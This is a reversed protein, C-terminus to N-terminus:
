THLSELAHVIGADSRENAIASVMFGEHIAARGTKPGICVIAKRPGDHISLGLRGPSGVVEVFARVASGSAFTIADYDGVRVRAAEAPEEQVPRPGYLNIALPAWGNGKLVEVVDEDAADSRPLLVSGPVRAIGLADALAAGSAEDPVLDVAVSHRELAAVTGEGVAGIKTRTALESFLVPIRDAQNAKTLVPDYFDHLRREFVDVANASTFLIWDHDVVGAVADRIRDSMALEGIEIVPMLIPEAGAARLKEALGANQPEPRTVVVRVGELSV